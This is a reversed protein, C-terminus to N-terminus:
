GYSAELRETLSGFIFDIDDLQPLYGTGCDVYEIGGDDNPVWCGSKKKVVLDLGHDRRSPKTGHLTLKRLVWLAYDLCPEWPALVIEDLGHRVLRGTKLNGLVVKGIDSLEYRLDRVPELAVDWFSAHTWFEDWKLKNEESDLILEQISDRVCAEIVDVDNNDLGLLPDSLEIRTKEKLLGSLWRWAAVHPGIEGPPHEPYPQTEYEQAEHEIAQAKSYFTYTPPDCLGCKSSGCVPCKKKEPTIDLCGPFLADIRAKTMQNYAMIGYWTLSHQGELIGCHTLLYQTLRKIARESRLGRYDGYEDDRIAKFVIQRGRSDFDSGGRGLDGLAYGVIHVHVTGEFTWHKDYRDQRFPHVIALGGRVNHTRAVNYAKTKIDAPRDSPDVYMSVVVHVLRSRKTDGQAFRENDFTKKGWALRRAVKRAERSAWKEYCDPCERSLCHSEVWFSQGCSGCHYPVPNGCGPLPTGHGPLIFDLAYGATSKDLRESGETTRPYAPYREVPTVESTASVGQFRRPVVSAM